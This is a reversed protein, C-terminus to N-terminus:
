DRETEVALAGFVTRVVFDYGDVAALTAITAIDFLDSGVIWEDFAGVVFDIEFFSIFPEGNTCFRGLGYVAENAFRACSCGLLGLIVWAKLYLKEKLSRRGSPNRDKKHITMRM